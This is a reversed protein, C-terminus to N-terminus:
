SGGALDLCAACASSALARRAQQAVSRLVRSRHEGAALTPADHLHELATTAITEITAAQTLVRRLRAPVDPPLGWRGSVLREDALDRLGSDWARVDLGELAETAEITAARLGREVDAATVQGLVPAPPPACDYSEWRVIEGRDGTPGFTEFAPVLAGGVLPSWACEGAEVAAGVFEPDGRPLGVLDGPAPLSLLVVREGLQSWLDLRAIAAAADVDPIDPTAADVAEALDVGRRALALTSWIAFRVSAPLEPVPEAYSFEVRPCRRSERVVQPDPAEFM